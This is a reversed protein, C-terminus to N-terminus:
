FDDSADEDAEKKISYLKENSKGNSFTILGASVADKRLTVKIKAEKELAKTAEKITTAGGIKLEVFDKRGLLEERDQLASLIMAKAETLAQEKPQHEGLYQFSVSGDGTQIGIDFPQLKEGVKSKLHKLILYKEADKTVEELSIHGSVAANIASSGRTSEADDSKGFMAKKRNHHTFVVTIEERAIKKLLDMVGQMGTSDNEDAEHISRLSDFMIVGVGKEKAEAILSDVFDNKLKAGQAVRYYIPLSTDTIGLLGLRDKILRSSDEENVIMVNAKETQFKGFVSSGDAIHRAFLFLVWSKWTNPPASVMNMTGQEFFPEVTYRAPPFDKALLEAHTMAPIYQVAVAESSKSSLGPRKGSEIKTISEYVGRLERDQLPPTYTRNVEQAMPWVEADWKDKPVTILLKGVFSAMANNRGEGEKLGVLESLTKRPKIDSLSAGVLLELLKPPINALPTDFPDVLWTYEGYPTTSPPVIVMGGECRIDIGSDKKGICVDNKIILGKPLKFFYQRGGSATEQVPTVPLNLSKVLDKNYGEKYSDTDLVLLGSIQGTAIGLNLCRWSEVEEPVAITSQYKKWGDKPYEILKKGLSNKTILGLPIASYGLSIYKFAEETTIRYREQKMTINLTNMM